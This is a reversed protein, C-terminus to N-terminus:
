GVSGVKKGGVWIKKHVESFFFLESSRGVRIKELCFLSNELFLTFHLWFVALVCIIGEKCSIFTNLLTYLTIVDHIPHKGFYFFYIFFFNESRGVRVKKPCTVLFLHIKKVGLYIELM